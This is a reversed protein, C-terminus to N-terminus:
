ATRPTKSRRAAWLWMLLASLLFFGTSWVDVARELGFSNYPPVVYYLIGLGGLTITLLGTWAGGLYTAVMFAPYATIYSLVGLGERMAVGIAVAGISILVGVCVAVARAWNKGPAFARVAHDYAAKPLGYWHRAITILIQKVGDGFRTRRLAVALLFAVALGRLSPRLTILEDKSSVQCASKFQHSPMVFILELAGRAILEEILKFNHFAALSIGQIAPDNMQYVLYASHGQIFGRCLSILAGDPDYIRSEFSSPRHSLMQEFTAINGLAVPFPQNRAALTVIDDDPTLDGAREDFMFDLGYDAAKRETQRINRRTKRGLSGLFAEASDGLPLLDRHEQQGQFYWVGKRQRAERSLAPSDKHSRVIAFRAVDIDAQHMFQEIASTVGGGSGRISLVADAVKTGWRWLRLGFWWGTFGAQVETKIERVPTGGSLNAAIRLRSLAAREASADSALLGDARCTASPVNRVMDRPTAQRM